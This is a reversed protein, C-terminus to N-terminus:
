NPGSVYIQQIVSTLILELICEVVPKNNSNSVTTTEETKHLVKKWLGYRKREDGSSGHVPPPQKLNM